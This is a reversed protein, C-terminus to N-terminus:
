FDTIRVDSKACLYARRMSLNRRIMRARKNYYNRMEQVDSEHAFLYRISKVIEEQELIEAYGHKAAILPSKIYMPTFLDEKVHCSFRVTFFGLVIYYMANFFYLIYSSYGFFQQARREMQSIVFALAKTKLLYFLTTWLMLNVSNFLDQDKHENDELLKYQKAMKRRSKQDDSEFEESINKLYLRYLLSLVITVPPVM